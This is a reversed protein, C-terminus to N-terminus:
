VADAWVRRVGNARLQLLAEGLNKTVQTEIDNVLIATTIKPDGWCYSLATFEIPNILTETSMSCELISKSSESRITLVRIQYTEVDLAQYLSAAMIESAKGAWFVNIHQATSSQFSNERLSHQQRRRESAVPYIRCAPTPGETNAADGM